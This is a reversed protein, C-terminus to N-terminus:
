RIFETLAQLLQPVLPLSPDTYTSLQSAQDPKEARVFLHNAAPVILVRADPRALRLADADAVTTQIDTAGQVVLVPVPTRRAEDAPDIAVATQVFRRASPPFLAALAVPVEPMPGSGLYADMLREFNAVGASDFQRALQERVVTRFGRGLGSLMAVGAVPAGRNAARTALGAGESHGILFVRSFRPDAALVRAGAVVDDAFDDFSVPETSGLAASGGIGRKDFRVAAISQGALGWAIKQYLDTKLGLTSNGDRDTPGSGAIILAVPVRGPETPHSLTGSLRQAGNSWQIPEETVGAPPPKEAAVVLPRSATLGAPPAPEVKLGQAPNAASLLEGDDGLTLGVEVGSIRLTATSGTRGLGVDLVVGNDVLFTKVTESGSELGPRRVLADIHSFLLNQIVGRPAPLPLSGNNANQGTTVWSVGAPGFTVAVSQIEKGGDIQYVQARYEVPEYSQDYVTHTALRRGAATVDITADLVTGTWRYVENAIETSGQLVRFGKMGPQEM